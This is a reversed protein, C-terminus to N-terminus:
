EVPRTELFSAMLNWERSLPMRSTVGSDDESAEAEAEEEDSEEEEEEEESEEGEPPQSAM